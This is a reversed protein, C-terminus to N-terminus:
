MDARSQSCTALETLITKAAQQTERAIARYSQLLKTEDSSLLHGMSQSMVARQGTVVYLVDVGARHAYNLFAANPSQEGKEWAIVTRRSVAGGEGFQDQSLGLRLREGRLREGILAFNIESM